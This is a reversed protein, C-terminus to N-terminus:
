GAAAGHTRRLQGCAADIDQGKEARLTAKVGRNVLYDRFAHCREPPSPAFPLGGVPNWPILNVFARLSGLYAVLEAADEERDNVGDLLTWEFTMQRGTLTCYRTVAERLRALPFRRNLPVLKSRLADNAAHLSVSLRVQWEEEAFREIALAEGATSVTIKRAGIGLGEPAMLLRISELVNGYNRFPEGMGMYVINPTREAMGEDAILRLAQEVIEAPTLHRTFGALGTACFSCKLPCGVQSSLCLTVRDRDRILVAEVTEGDALQFLAKKTGTRASSQIELTELAGASAEAKLTERLAKSLDTMADFDFVRKRHIWQFIQRGQFPKLAFRVAIDEPTMGALAPRTLPETGESRTM